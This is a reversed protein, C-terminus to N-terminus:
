TSADPKVAGLRYRGPHAAPVTAPVSSEPARYMAVSRLMDRRHVLGERIVAMRRVQGELQEIRDAIALCAPETMVADKVRTETVDRVKGGDALAKRVEESRKATHRKLETKAAGLAEEISVALMAYVAYRQAHGLSEGQVDDPDIGVVDALTFEYPAGTPLTVRLMFMRALDRDTWRVSREDRGAWKIPQPKM